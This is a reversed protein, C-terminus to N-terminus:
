FEKERAAHIHYDSRPYSQLFGVIAGEVEESLVFSRVFCCCRFVMNWLNVAGFRWFISTLLHFNNAFYCFVRIKGKERCKPAIQFSCFVLVFVIVGEEYCRPKLSSMHWCFMQECPVIVTECSMRVDHRCSDAHDDGLNGLVNRVRADFFSFLLLFFRM